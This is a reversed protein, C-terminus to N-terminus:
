TPRLLSAHVAVPAFFISTVLARICSQRCLACRYPSLGMNVKDDLENRTDGIHERAVWGKRMFSTYKSNNMVHKKTDELSYANKTTDLVHEQFQRLVDPEEWVAPRKYTSSKTFTQLVAQVGNRTM